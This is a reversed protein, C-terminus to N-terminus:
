RYKERGTEFTAELLALLDQNSKMSVSMSAEVKKQNPNMERM